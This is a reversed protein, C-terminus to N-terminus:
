PNAPFGGPGSNRYDGPVASYDGGTAAADSAEAPADNIEPLGPGAEVIDSPEGEVKIDYLEDEGGVVSPGLSYDGLADYEASTPTGSYDAGGANDKSFCILTNLKSGLSDFSSPNIIKM